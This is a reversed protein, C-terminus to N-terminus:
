DSGYQRQRRRKGEGRHWKWYNSKAQALEIKRDLREKLRKNEEKNMRKLGYRKRKDNAIALRDRKDEEKIRDCEEIKRTTWKEDNDKIEKICLSLLQWHEEKSKAGRKREDDAEDRQKAEERREECYKM